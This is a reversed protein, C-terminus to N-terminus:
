NRETRGTIFSNEETCELSTSAFSNKKSINKNKFSDRQSSNKLLTPRIQQVLEKTDKIKNLELVAGDYEYTHESGKNFFLNSKKKAMNDLRQREEEISIKRYRRMTYLNKKIHDLETELAPDVPDGKLNLPL